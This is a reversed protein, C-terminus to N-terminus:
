MSNSSQTATSPKRAGLRLTGQPLEQTESGQKGGAAWGAAEARCCPMDLGPQSHRACVLPVKQERERALGGLAM